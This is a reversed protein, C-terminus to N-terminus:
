SGKNTTVQGWVASVPDANPTTAAHRDDNPRPYGRISETHLHEFLGEKRYLDLVLGLREFPHMEGWPQIQKGPFWRDSFTCVFYGGPKVVRSIERFVALPDSLYEVSSTCIAADFANDDFTLSAQRNLDQIKFESLQENRQMEESNMGLGTLQLNLKPPVHSLHGSMLDLVRAGEGLLRGYIESVQQRALSDLHPILRPERYFDADDDENDRLFPYFGFFDTDTESHPAQMGPGRLTVEEAIDHCVGGHEEIPGLKEICTANLTLAFRALPHNADGLMSNDDKDVLRFPTFDGKFCNFARPAFGQPYFRGVRPLILLQSQSSDFLNKRFRVRRGPNHAPVLEGAAFSKSLSEGAQLAAAQQMDDPFIDRWFDIKGIYLRDVHSAVHSQWQLSFEFAARNASQM